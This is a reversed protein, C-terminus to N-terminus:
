ELFRPIIEGHFLCMQRTFAGFHLGLQVLSGMLSVIVFIFVPLFVDFIQEQLFLFKSHSDLHRVALVRIRLFLQVVQVTHEIQHLVHSNALQLDGVNVLTEKFVFICRNTVNIIKDFILSRLSDAGCGLFDKVVEPPVVLCGIRGYLSFLLDDISELSLEKLQLVPDIFHPLLDVDDVPLLALHLSRKVLLLFAM